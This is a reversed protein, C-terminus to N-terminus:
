RRIKPEARRLEEQGKKRDEAARGDGGATKSSDTVNAEVELEVELQHLLQIIFRQFSLKAPFDFASTM